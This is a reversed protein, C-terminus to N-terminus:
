GRTFRKEYKGAMQDAQLVTLFDACRFKVDLAPEGCVKAGIKLYSKILSPLLAQVEFATAGPQRQIAASEAFSPIVYSGIPHVGMSHDIAGVDSLYNYVSALAETNMTLVSGCGFLYAADILRMYESIGRWLLPIVAGSRYDRHICARSLELKIGPRSLLGSLNFEAQSYFEPAFCSAILRYTGVISSTRQDIVALYDAHRDFQDRDSRLAILKGAFERHFVKRRLSLIESLEADTEITKVTFNKASFELAVKRQFSNRNRLPQQFLRLVPRAREVLSSAFPSPALLLTM